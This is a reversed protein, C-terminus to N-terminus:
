AAFGDWDDNVIDLDDYWCEVGNIICDPDDDYEKDVIEYAMLDIAEDLTMSHNTIIHAIKTKDYRSIIHM